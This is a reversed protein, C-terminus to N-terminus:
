ATASLRGAMSSSRFPVGFGVPPIPSVSTSAGFREEPNRRAQKSVKVGRKRAKVLLRRAAEVVDPPDRPRGATGKGAWRSM